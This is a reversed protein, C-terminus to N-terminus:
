LTRGLKGNVVLTLNMGAKKMSKNLAKKKILEKTIKSLRRTDGYTKSFDKTFKSM